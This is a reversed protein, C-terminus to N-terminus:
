RLVGLKRLERKVGDIASHRPSSPMVFPQGNPRRVPQGNPGILQAHGGLGRLEYGPLQRMLKRLEPHGAKCASM